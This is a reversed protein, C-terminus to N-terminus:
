KSLKLSLVKYMIAFGVIVVAFLQLSTAYNYLNGFVAFWGFVFVALVEALLGGISTATARIKNPLEDQLYSNFLIKAFFFFAMFLAIAIPSLWNPMVTALALLFGWAVLYIAGPREAKKYRGALLSGIAGFVYIVAVWVSLASLSIGQENFLLRTYENVAGLGGVLASFAIILIIAPTSRAAKIGDSLIEKYPKHEISKTNKARPLLYVAFAGLLTTVVSIGIVLPYGYVIALGATAASLVRALLGISQMKGTVSVYDKTRDNKELEDYILAQKTGSTFATKVGWLLTGALFGLYNPFAIWVMFGIARAVQALWLVTRRPYKDAVAGSPVELLFTVVSSGIFISSIAAANLGFDAFMVGYLPFILAFSEFFAYSYFLRDM